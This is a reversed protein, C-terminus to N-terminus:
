KGRRAELAAVQHELRAVRQRLETNASEVDSGIGHVTTIVERHLARTSAFSPLAFFLTGLGFGAFFAFLKGGVFASPPKEDAKPTYTSPKPPPPATPKALPMPAEAAAGEVKAPLTSLRATRLPTSLAALSRSAARVLMPLHQTATHMASEASFSHPNM